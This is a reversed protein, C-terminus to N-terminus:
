AAKREIESISWVNGGCQFYIYGYLALRALVTQIEEIARAKQVEDRKVASDALCYINLDHWAPDHTIMFGHSRTLMPQVLAWLVEIPIVNFNFGWRLSNCYYLRAGPQKGWCFAGASDRWEVVGAVFAAQITTVGLSRRDIPKTDLGKSYNRILQVFQRTETATLGNM